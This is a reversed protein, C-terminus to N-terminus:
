FNGAKAVPQALFVLEGEDTNKLPRILTRGRMSFIGCCLALVPGEQQAGWFIKFTSCNRNRESFFFLTKNPAPHCECDLKLGPFILYNRGNERKAM